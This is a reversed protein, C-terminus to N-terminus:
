KSHSGTSRTVAKTVSRPTNAGSWSVPSAVSYCMAEADRGRGERLVGCDVGGVVPTSHVTMRAM